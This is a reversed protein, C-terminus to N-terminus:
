VHALLWLLTFDSYLEGEMMAALDFEVYAQRSLSANDRLLRLVLGNSAFGWLHEESRNLLEQVLSHPSSRSAGSVGPAKQDLGARFSVLHIPTKQWLHSVAYDRGGAAVPRATPLRGYGLEAFLPLLWRERTLTTGADTPPLKERAARFSAWAAVLRSWSRSIAENLREGPPLHYSAPTLASLSNRNAAAAEGAAIRQLTEAPLLGGETRVSPFPNSLRRAM